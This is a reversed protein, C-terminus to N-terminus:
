DALFLRRLEALAEPWDDTNYQHTERGAADMVWVSFRPGDGEERDAPDPYNIALFIGVHPDDRGVEGWIPCVDNHWARCELWDPVDEPVSDVPYRPFERRIISLDPM